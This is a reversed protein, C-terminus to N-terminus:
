LILRTETSELQICVLSLSPVILVSLFFFGRQMFTVWHVTCLPEYNTRCFHFNSHFSLVGSGNLKTITLTQGPKHAPQIPANLKKCGQEPSVRINQPDSGLIVGNMVIDRHTVPTAQSCRHKEAASM